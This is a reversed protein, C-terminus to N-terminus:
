NFTEEKNIKLIDYVELEKQKLPFNQEDYMFISKYDKLHRHAWYGAGYYEGKLYIVFIGKKIQKM